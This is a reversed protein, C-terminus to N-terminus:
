KREEILIPQLLVGLPYQQSVDAGIATMDLPKDVADMLFGQPAQKKTFEEAVKSKAEDDKEADVLYTFSQEKKGTITQKHAKVVVLFRRFLLKLISLTVQGPYIDKSDIKVDKEEGKAMSALTSLDLYSLFKKTAEEVVEKSARNELAQQVRIGLIGFAAIKQVRKEEDNLAATLADLSVEDKLQSLGFAAVARKQTAADGLVHVLFPTVERRGTSGLSELASCALFIDPSRSIDMLTAIVNPEPYDRLATAATAQVATEKSKLAQLLRGRDRDIIEVLRQRITVFANWNEPEERRTANFGKVLELARDRKGGFYDIEAVEVERVPEQVRPEIALVQKVAPFHDSMLLIPVKVWDQAVFGTTPVSHGYGLIHRRIMDLLGVISRVQKEHSLGLARIGIFTMNQYPIIQCLCEVNNEKEDEIKYTFVLKTGTVAQNPLLSLASILQKDKNLAEVLPNWGTKNKWITKADFGPGTDTELPILVRESRAFGTSVMKSIMSAPVPRDAFSGFFYVPVPGPSVSVYSVVPAGGKTTFGAVLGSSDAFDYPKCEVPEAATDSFGRNMMNSLRAVEKRKEEDLKAQQKQEAAKEHTQYTERLRGFFGKSEEGM